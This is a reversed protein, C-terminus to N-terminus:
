EEGNEKERHLERNLTITEHCRQGFNGYKYMTTRKFQEEEYVSPCNQLRDTEDSHFARFAFSAALITPAEVETWGGFFPEGEIGYTFYFRPMSTIM